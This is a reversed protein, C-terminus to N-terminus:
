APVQLLGPTTSTQAFNGGEPCGGNSSLVVSETKPGLWLWFGSPKYFSFILVLDLDYLALGLLTSRHDQLMPHSPGM